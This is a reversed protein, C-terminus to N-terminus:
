KRSSINIQTNGNLKLAHKRQLSTRKQLPAASRVLVFEHSLAWHIMAVPDHAEGRKEMAYGLDRDHSGNAM